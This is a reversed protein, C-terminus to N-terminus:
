MLLIATGSIGFCEALGWTGQGVQDRLEWVRELMQLADRAPGFAQLPGLENVIDRFLQEQGKLALCGAVCLPWVLGRRCAPSDAEVVLQLIMAVSERIMHEALDWGSTVISLYIRAAHAWTLSTLVRQDGQRATNFRYYARMDIAGDRAHGQQHAIEFNEIALFLEQALLKGQGAIEGSSDIGGSSRKRADLTAIRGVLGLVMGQCGVFGGMQLRKEKGPEYPDETDAMLLFHFRGLRPQTGLSTSAIIDSFVLLAVAFRFAAQDPSWLLCDPGVEHFFSRAEMEQLVPELPCWTANGYEDLIDQFLTLAATLHSGWDAGRAMATEFILLHMINELVRAKQILTSKRGQTNLLEMEFRMAKVSADMHRALTDWVTQHQSDNTAPVSEKALVLTFFYASLSIATHTLTENDQMMAFLWSRGGSLMPPRYWPFLFPFVNDYYMTTYHVESAAFAPADMVPPTGAHSERASGPDSTEVPFSSSARSTPYSDRVSLVQIAYDKDRRAAASQRVETRIRQAMEAQKVGGDM